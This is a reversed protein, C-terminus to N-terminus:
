RNSPLSRGLSFAFMLITELLRRSLFRSALVIIFLVALFFIISSLTVDTQSITFLRTTLIDRIFESVSSPTM